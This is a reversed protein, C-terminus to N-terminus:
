GACCLEDLRSPIESFTFLTNLFFGGRNAETTKSKKLLTKEDDRSLTVFFFFVYGACAIGFSVWKSFKDSTFPVLVWNLITLVLLTILAATLFGYLFSFDKKTVAVYTTISAFVAGTAIFAQLVVLGEGSVFYQAVVGGIAISWALVFVYMLILNFPFPPPFCSLIIISALTIGVAIWLVILNDVMFDRLDVIFACACGIGITISFNITLLLYVKRIFSLRINVSATAVTTAQMTGPYPMGGDAGGGVDGAAVGGPYGVGAHQASSSGGGGAGSGFKM